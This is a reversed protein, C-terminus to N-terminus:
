CHNTTTNIGYISNLQEIHLSFPVMAKELATEIEALHSKLTDYHDMLMEPFNQQIKSLTRNVAM